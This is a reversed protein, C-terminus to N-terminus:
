FGVRVGATYMKTTPYANYDTNLSLVNTNAFSNVEPDYGTYKTFTLLNTGTVYVSASKITKSLGKGLPLNYSLSVTKLRLFSGNEVVDSTIGTRRRLTSNAKPITNSTNPGTWRDNVIALKNTTFDGSELEYRNLNLVDDGQVGQIFVNLNLRGYSFNNTVGYIFKPQAHGLIERDKADIVKDGNLDAYRPDGPLVGKIGSAAIEEPTQWIGVFRYGYFSGISEGVRLINTGGTGSPFLSSSADGVFREKEGALDTVKNRNLSFNLNTTWQFSKGNINESNIALEFGKNDVGGANLLISAYGTTRPVSVNLLLDKTHKSYYDATLTIRNKFIALDLGIDFSSTSEWSLDPNPINAPSVGVVRTSGGLTAGNAAYRKGSQYPDIEQNGSVGLSARLKLDSVFPLSKMFDEEIVRWAIAGSPFYGWKNNVGFKSSGDARMTFTFLYKDMLRYNARGFFSALTNKNHSSGPTLVNAGIGINDYGLVNTFFNTSASFFDNTDFQQMSFGGIVNIAHNENLQKDYTLTNENVWSLTNAYEKRASGLTNSGLFIDSPVYLNRTQLDFDTGATAKFKLGKIIEYEGYFNILGRLDKYQNTTKNAYAIPNGLAFTYGTPANQYTYDGNTMVPVAPNIRLADLLVGGASGGGTNVLARNDISGTLQSSFGFNLKEGVKKDLNFRVSARKYGSNIIIGQQDFYNMSLNYKTEPTGGIFNLQYNSIPATQFLEKQWDTGVGLEAIQADTYPLAKALTPTEINTLKQADNLYNAYETANMMKYPKRVKQLGYYAEFNIASQGATGKKTTIIVVGNAGRSGYIAISSADKLIDISQIDNPNITNLNGAGPFGDVVFLPENNTNISNTGRIRLSSVGGPQSQTQTVQVGSARGQIMQDARAIPLNEVSKASISSVAGTLDKKKQTGYGVVVIESLASNEEKLVVNILTRNDIKIEQTAFGVFSFILTGVGNPLTLAYNGNWDTMTAVNSGKLKISVGPMPGGKEDTVRGKLEVKQIFSSWLVENPKSEKIIVTRDKFMFTFPQDDFCLKLVDELTENQVSIDIRKAKKIDEQNYFFDYGSQKRIEKFLQQLTANKKSITIRQANSAQAFQLFATVLLITTFKMIVLFKHVFGWPKCVSQKYFNM